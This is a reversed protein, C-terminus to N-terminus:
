GASEPKLSAGVLRSARGNRYRLDGFRTVTVNRSIYKELLAEGLPNAQEELALDLRKAARSIQFRRRLDRFAYTSAWAAAAIACAMFGLAVPVSTLVDLAQGVTWWFDSPTTM